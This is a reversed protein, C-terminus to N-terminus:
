DGRTVPIITVTLTASTPTMLVAGFAFGRKPAGCALFINPGLATKRSKQASKLQKNSPPGVL